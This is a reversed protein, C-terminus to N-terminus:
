TPQVLEIGTTGVTVYDESDGGRVLRWFETEVLPSPSSNPFIELEIGGTAVLRVGGYSDALFTTITVPQELLRGVDDMRVDWWSAGRVDWDFTELDAKEDAPTFLDGSAVLLATPGALRWACAVRLTYAGVPSGEAERREGFQVILVDAERGLGWMRLGTLPALIREVIEKLSGGVFFAVIALRRRM